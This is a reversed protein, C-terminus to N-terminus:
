EGLKGLLPAIEQTIQDTNMEGADKEKYKPFYLRYMRSYRTKIDQCGKIGAADNDFMVILDMTGLSDLIQTQGEKLTNGFVALVNPIGAGILRLADGPGEVLIVKKTKKIELEAGWTNYLSVGAKVGDHLWKSCRYFDWGTSPCFKDPAHYYTCKPCKEFISRSTAGEYSIGDKSYCPIVARNYFKKTKDDCNGVDYLDLTKIDFDRGVFYASPIKLKSRIQERTPSTGKSEEIEGFVKLFIDKEPSKVIPVLPADENVFRYIFNIAEPYSTESSRSLLGRIFSIGDKKFDRDCNTFCQFIIFSKNNYCCAGDKRDGEHLPCPFSYRNGVRQYEINFYKLLPELHIAILKSARDWKPNEIKM